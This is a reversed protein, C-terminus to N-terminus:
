DILLPRSKSLISLCVRVKIIGMQAEKCTPLCKAQFGVEFYSYQVIDYAGSLTINNCSEMLWSIILKLKIAVARWVTHIFITESVV